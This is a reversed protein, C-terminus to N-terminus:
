KAAQTIFNITERLAPMGGAIKHEISIALIAPSDGASRLATSASDDKQRPFGV